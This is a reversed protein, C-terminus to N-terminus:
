AVLRYEQEVRLPTKYKLTQRSLMSNLTNEILQEHMIWM